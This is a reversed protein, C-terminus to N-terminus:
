GAGAPRGTRGRPWFAIIQNANLLAVRARTQYLVEDRTLDSGRPTVFYPLQLRKHLREAVTSPLDLGVAHLTTIGHHQIQTVMQETLLRCVADMERHELTPPETEDISLNTEVRAAPHDLRVISHIVRPADAPQPILFFLHAPEGDRALFRSVDEAFAHAGPGCDRGALLIGVM